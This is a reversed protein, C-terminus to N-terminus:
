VKSTHVLSQFTVCTVCTGLGFVQFMPVLFVCLSHM